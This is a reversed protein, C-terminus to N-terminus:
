LEVIRKNILCSLIHFATGNWSGFVMIPKGSSSALLKWAKEEELKVPFFYKESDCLYFSKDQRFFRLDSLLAPYDILGPNKALARTYDLIFQQLSKIGDLRAFPRDKPHVDKLLARVPTSSPYYCLKAEMATGMFLFKEDEKGILRINSVEEWSYFARKLLGKVEIGNLNLTIRNSLKLYHILSIIGLVLFM